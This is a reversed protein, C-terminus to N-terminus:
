EEIERILLKPIGIIRCRELDAGEIRKPPHNANIPVMRLWDEGPVFEVKKLSTNEGEYLIAGVQGSYNLTSQKLILVKDGEQYTPYMSDGKVRLVFFESKDRGKLFSMPIDIVDGAWDEMGISDYGAAIEGIVPFTIYDETVTPSSHQITGSESWGMLYAPTTGLATALLEIKDSPINSIIGKEYRQITQKSTGIMRALEELTLHNEARKIRINDAISM